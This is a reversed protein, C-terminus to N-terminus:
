KIEGTLCNVSYFNDNGNFTWTPYYVGDDEDYVFSLEANMEDFDEAAGRTKNTNGLLIKAQEYSIPAAKTQNKVKEFDSWKVNAAIVGKSDVIADFGEGSIRVGDFQNQINIVYAVIQEESENDNEDIEAMVIPTVEVKQEEVTARTLGAVNNKLWNLGIDIALEDSMSIPTDGIEDIVASLKDNNKDKIVNDAVVTINKATGKLAYNPIELTSLGASSLETTGNPNVSSFRLITQSSSGPRSYTNGPFGDFRSYQVNGSHTLVCYNRANYGGVNNDNKYFENALIWSSKVSEGTKAYAIFKDAIVADANSPANGHYGSIVRVANNGRMAKAYIQRPKIGESGNLQNCVALFVFELNGGAWSPSQSDIDVSDNGPTNGWLQGSSVGEGSWYKIYDSNTYFDDSTIGTTKNTIQYSYGSANSKIGNAVVMADNQKNDFPNLKLAQINHNGAALVTQGVM